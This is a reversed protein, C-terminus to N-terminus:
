QFDESYHCHNQHNKSLAWSFADTLRSYYERAIAEQRDSFDRIVIEPSDSKNKQTEVQQSLHGLPGQNWTDAYGDRSRHYAMNRMVGDEMQFDQPNPIDPNFTESHYHFNEGVDLGTFSLSYSACSYQDKTTPNNYNITLNTYDIVNGEKFFEESYNFSTIFNITYFYNYQGDLNSCGVDILIYNAEETASTLSALGYTCTSAVTGDYFISERISDSNTYDYSVAKEFLHPYLSDICSKWEDSDLLLAIEMYDANQNLTLLENFLSNYEGTFVCDKTHAEKGAPTPLFIGSSAVVVTTGTLALLMKLRKRRSATDKKSDDSEANELSGGSFEKEADRDDAFFEKKQAGEERRPKEDEAPSFELRSAAENDYVPNFEQNNM